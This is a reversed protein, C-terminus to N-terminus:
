KDNSKALRAKIQEYYSYEKEILIYRRDTLKCAEGTVGSGGFPDIVKAGPYCARQILDKMLEVPKEHPHKLRSTHVNDYTLVSSFEVRATLSAQGKACLLIPEYDRATQWLQRGRTLNKPKHWILPYDQVQYGMYTLEKQYFPFDITSTIVYMMSTSKMVRMLERFIPLLIDQPVGEERYTSWPPDTLCLDFTEPPFFKMIEASDGFMVQDMEMTAPRLAALEAYMRSEAMKILRLATTKDEINKLEPNILLADALKLDQSLGGYSIGLEKATMEKTWGPNDAYDRGMRKQGYEAIRMDHLEKELMVQEHWALNERRLNEHLSIEHANTAASPLIESVEIEIFGLDGAAMYRQKGVIVLYPPGDGQLKIPHFLGFSKISEKLREFGEKKTVNPHRIDMMKVMM